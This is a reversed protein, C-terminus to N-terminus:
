LFRRPAPWPTRLGGTIRPATEPRPAGKGERIRVCLVPWLVLLAVAICQIFGGLYQALQAELRLYNPILAIGIANMVWGSDRALFAHQFYDFFIGLPIMILFPGWWGFNIFSEAVTGVAISVRDLRDPATLGYAVQYFQNAESASPKGPWVARPIFTVLMYSYLRGHQYPVVEPTMELVNATQQLLSVRNLVTDTLRQWNSASPDQLTIEWNRLSESSWFTIRQSLTSDVREGWFARRFAM